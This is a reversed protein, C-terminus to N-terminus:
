GKYPKLKDIARMIQEDMINEFQCVPDPYVEDSYDAGQAPPPPFFTKHLARSKNENSIREYTRGNREEKLVPVRLSTRGGDTSPEVV